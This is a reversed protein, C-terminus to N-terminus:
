RAGIKLHSKETFSFCKLAMSDLEAMKPHFGDREATSLKTTKAM